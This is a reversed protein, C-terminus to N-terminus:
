SAFVITTTIYCDFYLLLIITINIVYYKLYKICNFFSLLMYCVQVTPWHGGVNGMYKACIQSNRDHAM